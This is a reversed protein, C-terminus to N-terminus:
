LMKDLQAKKLNTFREWGKPRTKARPNGGALAPRPSEGDQEGTEQLTQTNDRPDHSDESDSELDM